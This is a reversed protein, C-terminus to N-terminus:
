TRTRMSRSRKSRHYQLAFRHAEANALLIEREHEHVLNSPGVIRMPRHREDKVVGVMPIHRQARKLVRRAVNLQATSGDVVILDPYQWEEHTLRRTLLEGLAGTDNAGNFERIAFKRYETLKQEGHIVVTMVGVMDTGDLHAIDYAEVRFDHEDRYARSEHKILSVDQIHELAFIKRKTEDAKEFAEARAYRRMDRKLKQILVQKKGEFFLRINRITRMYEARSNTDPYLGIQRNFDITGRAIKTREKGVELKTDYFQFLKRILKLAEKFLGGQTFPGYIHSYADVNAGALDKARVVLVRPFSETTIVVHNYSKDDKSVSNYRPKHTRILNTELLLAELVSDTVTWEVRVAERVMREIASSRKEEINPDFYSRIRSRLSTAKGIYLIRKRNGLFFYVGPVDPIAKSLATREM